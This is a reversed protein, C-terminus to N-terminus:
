AVLSARLQTDPRYQFGTIIYLDINSMYFIFRVHHWKIRKSRMRIPVEYYISDARISYIIVILILFTSRKYRIVRNNAYPFKSSQLM